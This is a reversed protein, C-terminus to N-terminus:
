CTDLRGEVFLFFNETSLFHKTNEIESLAEDERDLLHRIERDLFDEPIQAWFTNRKHEVVSSDKTELFFIFDETSPFHRSKRIL